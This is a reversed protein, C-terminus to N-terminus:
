VYIRGGIYDDIEDLLSQKNFYKESYNKANEALNKLEIPSYQSMLIINGALGEIDGAGSMMGCNAHKIIDQVEGDASLLIPCGCAMCSQLKAPITRAFVDSKALSILAADCAGIYSPIDEAPKKAIFNFYSTVGKNEVQEQLVEKYRGDGVINFRVKIEKSKLISAVSPLIDLGQAYGINGAFIINFVGDKPIETIMGGRIPYYFDEAYQPWFSLKDRVVGKGEIASIFSRSSTFIHKSKRYIYCVMKEILKIIIPNKLGTVSQINEPWLDTVYLFCPIHMKGAYWIGPLAQTMPSVEYIFVCDAKVRTILFWFFGSIVFSAYNLCLLLMNNGRPMIPIRIIDINEYKERRKKWIGYGKYFRGLPYNPIGTLVTIHYGRKVWEKCIDNIRFQEPYFYQSVVLVHKKCIM